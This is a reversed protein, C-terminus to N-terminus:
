NVTTTTIIKAYLFIETNMGLSRPDNANLGLPDLGILEDGLIQSLKVRGPPPTLLLISGLIGKLM